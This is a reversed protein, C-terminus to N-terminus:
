RRHADTGLVGWGRMLEEETEKRRRTEPRTYDETRHSGTSAQEGERLDGGGRRRRRRRRRGSRQRSRRGGTRM